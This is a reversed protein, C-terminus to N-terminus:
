SANTQFGKKTDTHPKTRILNYGDFNTHSYFFKWRVVNLNHSMSFLHSGDFVIQQFRAYDSASQILYKPWTPLFKPTIMEVSFFLSMLKKLISFRRFLGLNSSSFTGDWVCDCVWLWVWDWLWNSSSHSCVLLSIWDFNFATHLSYTM